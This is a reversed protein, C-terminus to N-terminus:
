FHSHRKKEEYLHAFNDNQNSIFGYLRAVPRKIMFFINLFRKWLCKYPPPPM